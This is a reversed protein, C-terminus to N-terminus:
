RDTPNDRTKENQDGIDTRTLEERLMKWAQMGFESLHCAEDDLVSIATDRNMWSKKQPPPNSTEQPPNVSAQFAEESLMDWAEFEKRMEEEPTM